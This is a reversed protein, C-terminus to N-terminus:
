KKVQAPLASDPSDSVALTAIGPRTWRKKRWLKTNDNAVDDAKAATREAAAARAEV